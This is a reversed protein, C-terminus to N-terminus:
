GLVAIFWPSITKIGIFVGTAAVLATSITIYFNFISMRQGAHLAFYKWAQERQDEM